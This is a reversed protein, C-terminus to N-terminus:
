KIAAAAAAAKAKKTQTPDFRYSFGVNLSESFQTTPGTKINGNKDERTISVDHDYLLQTAFNLTFWKNITMDIGVIWDVDINGRNSRNGVFTNNEFIPEETNNLYNNYLSITTRLKINKMLEKKFEAKLFAGFEARIKKGEELGFVTEDVGKDTVITFKGAAPSFFLSFEENPKWNFGGALIMRAPALFNTTYQTKSGELNTQTFQNTFNLLGGVFITGKKDVQYGYQSNLEMMDINKTLPAGENKIMGWEARFNNEWSSKKRRYNAFIDGM